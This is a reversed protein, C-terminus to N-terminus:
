PAIEFQSNPGITVVSSDYMKLRARSRDGTRGRDGVSLVQNTYARDWAEPKAGARHVQVGEDAEILTVVNTSAGPAPLTLSAVFFVLAAPRPFFGCRLGQWLAAGKM